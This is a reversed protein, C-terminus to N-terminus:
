SKLIAEIEVLTLGVTEKGNKLVTSWGTLGSFSFGVCTWSEGQVSLVSGIGFIKKM